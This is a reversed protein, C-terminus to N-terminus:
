LWCAHIFSCAPRFVACEFDNGGQAECYPGAPVGLLLLARPAVYHTVALVKSTGFSHRLVLGVGFHARSKPSMRSTSVCSVGPAPLM